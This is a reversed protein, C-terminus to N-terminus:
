KKTTRDGQVLRGLRKALDTFNQLEQVDVTSLMEANYQAFQELAVEIKERGATSLVLVYSRKDKESDTRDIYGEKVLQGVLYTISAPSSHLKVALDMPKLQGLHYLADLIEFQPLGIKQSKLFRAHAMEISSACRKIALIADLARKNKQSGKYHSPM